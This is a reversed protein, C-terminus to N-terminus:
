LMVLHPPGRGTGSARVVVGMLVAPSLRAMPDVRGPLWTLAPRAEKRSWAATTTPKSIITVGGNVGAESSRTTWITNSCAAGGGSGAGSDWGSARAGATSSGVGGGTGLGSGGGAGM